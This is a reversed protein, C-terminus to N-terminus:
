YKYKQKYKKKKIQLGKGTKWDGEALAWLVIKTRITIASFAHGDYFALRRSALLYFLYVPYFPPLM